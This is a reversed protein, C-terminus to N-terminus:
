IVVKEITCTPANQLALFDAGISMTGVIPIVRRALFGGVSRTGGARFPLKANGTARRFFDSAPSTNIGSRGGGSIGVRPKTITPQSFRILAGGLATNDGVM